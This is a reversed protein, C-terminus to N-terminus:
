YGLSTNDGRRDAGCTIQGDVIMIANVQGISSRELIIHDLNNLNRKITDNLFGQEM